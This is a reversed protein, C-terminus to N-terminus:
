ADPWPSQPCANRNKLHRIHARSETFRRGCYECQIKKELRLHKYNIHSQLNHKATYIKECIGCKFKKSIRGDTTNVAVRSDSKVTLSESDRNEPFSSGPIPHADSPSNSARTLSSSIGPPAFEDDWPPVNHSSTTASQLGLRTDGSRYGSGYAAAMDWMAELQFSEFNLPNRANSTPPEM